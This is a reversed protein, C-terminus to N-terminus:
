GNLLGRVFRVEEEVVGHGAGPYIQVTVAAGLRELVAQTERVRALPIHPDREHCGLFATTGDLRGPYDFRKPAHGYLNERPAGDAEGTGLLGGSLAVVAHLPRGTRATYELALCAGQSFGLVVIREPGFGQNGLHEIVRGVAGLGSTLGPENVALPALFSQPWWSHGAAEPALYAIDPIGLHDALGLIDSASGGRGHLMVVAFRARALPAGAQSLGGGAHPVASTGAAIM